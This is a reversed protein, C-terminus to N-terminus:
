FMIVRQWCRVTITYGRIVGAQPDCPSKVDM